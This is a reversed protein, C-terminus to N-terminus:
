RDLIYGLGMEKLAYTFDSNVRVKYKKSGLEVKWGTTRDILIISLPTNGRNAKLLAVLRARFAASLQESRVEVKLGKLLTDTVNGLAIVDTVSYKFNPKVAPAAGDKPKGYYPAKIEGTIYVETKPQLKGKLRDVDKGYFPFEVHGSFDEITVKLTPSGNRSTGNVVSNVVGGINVKKGTQSATCEDILAQLDVM